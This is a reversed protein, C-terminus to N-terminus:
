IVSKEPMNRNILLPVLGYLAGRSDSRDNVYHSRKRKQVEDAQVIQGLPERERQETEDIIESKPYKFREPNSTATKSETTTNGFLFREGIYDTITMAGKEKKATRRTEPPPAHPSAGGQFYVEDFGQDGGLSSLLLGDEQDWLSENPTFSGGL